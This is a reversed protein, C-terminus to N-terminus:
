QWIVQSKTVVLSFAGPYWKCNYTSISWITAVNYEFFPNNVKLVSENKLKGSGQSTLVCVLICGQM